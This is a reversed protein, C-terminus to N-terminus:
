CCRGGRRGPSRPHRTSPRRRCCHWVQAGTLASLAYVGTDSGVYVHPGALAAGSLDGNTGTALAHKWILARTTLNIAYTIKDKATVYVVGGGFGNRGPLSIAPPAGVDADKETSTRYRWVLAGTTANVAYVSDDPDKSGFVVLPIGHADTAHAPPSWSGGPSVAFKTFEWDRTCGGHRNGPGYVAWEAGPGGGPITGDYVVPGSGSAADTM